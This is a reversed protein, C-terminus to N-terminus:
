RTPNSFEEVTKLMKEFSDIGAHITRTRRCYPTYEEEVYYNQALGTNYVYVTCGSPTKYHNGYRVWDKPFVRRKTYPLDVAITKTKPDYDYAPFQEYGTKYLSYLMRRKM